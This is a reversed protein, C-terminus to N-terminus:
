TALLVPYFDNGMSVAQLQVESLIVETQLALGLAGGARFNESRIIGRNLWNDSGSRVALLECFIGNLFGFLASYCVKWSAAVVEPCKGNRHNTELLSAWWPTMPTPGPM